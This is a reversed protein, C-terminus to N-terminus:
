IKIMLYKSLMLTTVLLFILYNTKQYYNKLKDTAFIVDSISASNLDTYSDGFYIIKSYLTKHLATRVGKFNESINHNGSDFYQVKIGKSDFTSKGAIIDISKPDIGISSLASCIYFDVGSSVILLWCRYM